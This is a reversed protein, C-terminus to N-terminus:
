PQMRLKYMEEYYHQSDLVTEQVLEPLDSINEDSGFTELEAPKLFGTSTSLTRYWTDNGSWGEVPGPEWHLMSERFEFGVAECYKKMIAVPDVLLDDVSIIVSTQGKVDRIYNYLDWMGRYSLKGPLYSIDSGYVKLFGKYYSLISKIPQRILFSHVFGEPIADYRGTAAIRYAHDKMFVGRYGVAPGQLMEKVDSFKCGPQVQNNMFLPFCREEGFYAAKGYSEHYVKIDGLARISREFVTSMSRPATWLIARPFKRGDQSMEMRNESTHM